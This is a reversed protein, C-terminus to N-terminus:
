FRGAALGPTSDLACFVLERMCQQKTRDLFFDNSAWKSMAEATNQPQNEHYLVTNVLTWIM